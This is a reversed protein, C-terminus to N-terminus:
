RSARHEKQILSGHSSCVICTCVCVCVCVCYMYVCVICAHVCVHVCVCVRSFSRQLGKLTHTSLSTLLPFVVCRNVGTVLGGSVALVLFSRNCMLAKLSSWFETRETEASPSPPTPPRAPFYITALLASFVAMEATVYLMTRIDYHRTLYPIIIFGLSIGTFQAMVMVSTAFTRQKPPFWVSSIRAPTTEVPPGAIGIMVHGLHILFIWKTGPVSPVFCRIVMGVALLWSSSLVSVRLGFRDLFWMYPFSM